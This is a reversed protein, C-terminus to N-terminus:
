IFAVDEQLYEEIKAISVVLSDFALYRFKRAYYHEIGKYINTLIEKNLK